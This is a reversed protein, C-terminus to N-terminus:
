GLPVKGEDAREAGRGGRGGRQAGGPPLGIQEAFPALFGTLWRFCVGCPRMNIKLKTPFSPCCSSENGSVVVKMREYVLQMAKVIEDEEVVVVDEVLDRVVAWTLNGPKAQLGDALTKPKAADM